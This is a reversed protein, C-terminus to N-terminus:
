EYEYPYNIDLLPKEGAQWAQLIEAGTIPLNELKNIFLVGDLHDSEHQIVRSLFPPAKLIQKVGNQDLYEVTVKRFRKVMGFVGPISLCGEEQVDTRISKSIIKPNILVHLGSGDKADIVILKMNLNVQPAALGVGNSQYMLETMDNIIDIMESSKIQAMTLAVTPQTLRSHPYIIISKLIKM